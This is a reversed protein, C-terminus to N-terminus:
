ADDGSKLLRPIMVLNKGTADAIEQHIKVCEIANRTNKNINGALAAVAKSQDVCSELSDKDKPDISQLKAIQASLADNLEDFVNRTVMGGM